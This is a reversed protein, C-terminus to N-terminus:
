HFNIVPVKIASEDKVRSIRKVEFLSIYFSKVNVFCIYKRVSFLELMCGAQETREVLLIQFHHIKRYHLFESEMEDTIKIFLYEVFNILM